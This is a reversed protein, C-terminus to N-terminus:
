KEREDLYETSLPDGIVELTRLWELASRHDGSEALEDAWRLTRAVAQEHRASSEGNSGIDEAQM